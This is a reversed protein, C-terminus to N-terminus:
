YEKELSDLYRAIPDSRKRDRESIENAVKLYSDFAGSRAVM